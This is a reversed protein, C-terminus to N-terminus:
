TVGSDNIVFIPCRLFWLHLRCQLCKPMIPQSLSLLLLMEKPSKLELATTQELESRLLCIIYRTQFQHSRNIAVKHMLRLSLSRAGPDSIPIHPSPAHVHLLPQPRQGQPDLDGARKTISRTNDIKVWLYLYMGIGSTRV